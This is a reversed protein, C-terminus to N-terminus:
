NSSILINQMFGSQSEDIISDPVSQQLNSRSALILSILMELLNRKFPATVLIDVREM